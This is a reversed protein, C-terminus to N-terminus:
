EYARGSGDDYGYTLSDDYSPGPADNGDFTLAVLTYRRVKDGPESGGAAGPETVMMGTVKGARNNGKLSVNLDLRKAARIAEEATLGRFDPLTVFTDPLANERDSLWIRGCYAMDLGPSPYQSRCIEGPMFDKAPVPLMGDSFVMRQSDAWDLNTAAEPYRWRFLFNYDYAKFHLPLNDRTILYEGIERVAVQAGKYYPDKVDHVVAYIVYKPDEAPVLAVATHTNYNDTDSGFLARSSTGTKYAAEIGPMYAKRGTGYRGVGVMMHRVQRCSEPSLVRRIEESKIEKVLEGNANLLADAVRPKMLSGGNALMAFDTAMRIGTITVQEGFATVAMNLENEDKHILGTVEGPLDIGTIDRFGFAKIYDYFTPVGVKQAIRIFPPNRSDWICEAPSLMGRNLGDYSSIPYDWGPIMIPEDSLPTDKTIVAEDLGMGMIFPKIVSGVEHPYNLSRNTWVRGTMYDMQEKNEDPNWDDKTYGDPAAAPHNLDFNTESTMAVVKASQADMVIIQAGNLAGCAAAAQRALKQALSQVDSQITLRINYGPVAPVDAQSTNPLPQAWYNDVQRYVHGPRGALEDDYYAEVGIIGTLAEDRKSAFGVITSALDGQPYYRAQNADQRVGGIHYKELFDTLVKNQEATISRRLVIYAEDKYKKLDMRFNYVDLDLIKCFREEAESQTIEGDRPPGFVSPTVGIAYTYTSIALAKGEADLINGRAAYVPYQVTHTNAAMETYKRHDTIAIGYLLRTIQLSLAAVLLIVLLMGKRMNRKARETQRRINFVKSNESKKPRPAQPQDAPGAHRAERKPGPVRRDM